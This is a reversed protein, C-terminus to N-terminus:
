LFRSYKMVVFFNILRWILHNSNKDCNLKTIIYWDSAWFTLVFARVLRKLWWDNSYIFFRSSCWILVNSNVFLNSVREISKSLSLFSFESFNVKTSFTERAFLFSSIQKLIRRRKIVDFNEFVDSSEVVDISFSSKNFWVFQIM